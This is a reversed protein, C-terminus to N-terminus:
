IKTKLSILLMEEDRRSQGGEDLLSSLLLGQAKMLKTTMM